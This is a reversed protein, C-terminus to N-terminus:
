APQLSAEASLREAIRRAASSPLLQTVRWVDADGLSVLGGTGAVPSGFPRVDESAWCRVHVVPYMSPAWLVRGTTVAVVGCSLDDCGTALELLREGPALERGLAELELGIGYRAGAPLKEAALELVHDRDAMTM